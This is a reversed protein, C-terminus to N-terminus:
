HYFVTVRCKVGSQDTGNGAQANVGSTGDEVSIVLKGNTADYIVSSTPVVPLFQAVDVVYDISGVYSALLTALVDGGTVYTTPGTIDFVGVLHNGVVGNKKVVAVTSVAM